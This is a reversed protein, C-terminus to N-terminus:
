TRVKIAVLEEDSFLFEVNNSNIQLDINAEKKFWIIYDSESLQLCVDANNDIVKLKPIGNVSRIGKSFVCQDSHVIPPFICELEGMISNDNNWLMSGIAIEYAKCDDDMFNTVINFTKIEDIYSTEINAFSEHVVEILRIM